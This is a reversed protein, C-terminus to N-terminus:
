CVGTSGLDRVGFELSKKCQTNKGSFRFMSALRFYAAGLAYGEADEIITELAMSDFAIAAKDIKAL